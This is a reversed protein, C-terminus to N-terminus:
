QPVTRNHQCAGVGSRCRSGVGCPVSVLLRCILGEIVTLRKSLGKPFSQHQTGKGQAM